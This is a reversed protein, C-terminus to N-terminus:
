RCPRFRGMGRRLIYDAHETKSNFLKDLGWIVSAVVQMHIISGPLSARESTVDVLWSQIKLSNAAKSKLESFSTRQTSFGFQTLCFPPHTHFIRHQEAWGCFNVYAAELQMGIRNEWGRVDAPFAVFIEQEALETLATATSLLCVGLPGLHMLDPQLQHISFGEVTALQSVGDDAVLYDATNRLEYHTSSAAIDPM